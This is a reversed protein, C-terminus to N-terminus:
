LAESLQVAENTERCNPVFESGAINNQIIKDFTYGEFRQTFNAFQKLNSHIFIFFLLLTM